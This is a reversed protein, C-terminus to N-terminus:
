FIGLYIITGNLVCIKHYTDLLRKITLIIIKCFVIKEVFWANCYLGYFYLEYLVCFLDSCFEYKKVIM